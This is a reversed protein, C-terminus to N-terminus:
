EGTSRLLRAMGEDMITPSLAAVRLALLKRRKDDLSFSMLHKVKLRHHEQWDALLLDVVKNWKERDQQALRRLARLFLERNRRNREPPYSPQFYFAFGTDMWPNQQAQILRELIADEDPVNEKYWLIGNNVKCLQYQGAGEVGADSAAARLEQKFSQHLQARHEQDLDQRRDSLLGYDYDHEAFNHLLKRVESGGHSGSGVLVIAFGPIEKAAGSREYLERLIAIKEQDVVNELFVLKEALERPASVEQLARVMERLQGFSEAPQGRLASRRWFALLSRIWSQRRQEPTLGIENQHDLAEQRVQWQPKGLDFHSLRAQQAHLEKKEPRGELLEETRIPM